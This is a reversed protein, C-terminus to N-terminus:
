WLNWFKVRFILIEWFCVHQLLLNGRVHEHQWKIVGERGKGKGTFESRFEHLTAECTGTSLKLYKEAHVRDTQVQPKQLSLLSYYWCTGFPTKEVIFVSTSKNHFPKGQWSFALLSDPKAVSKTPPTPLILWCSMGFVCCHCDSITSLNM